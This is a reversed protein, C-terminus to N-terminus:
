KRTRRSAPIMPLATNNSEVGLVVTKNGRNVTDLIPQVLIDVALFGTPLTVVNTKLPVGNTILEYDVGNSATGSIALSVVLDNTAPGYRVLTFAGSSTGELATPDTVLIGCSPLPIPPGVPQNPGGPNFVQAQLGSGAILSGAIAGFLKSVLAQKM